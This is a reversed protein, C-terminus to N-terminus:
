EVGYDDNLDEQFYDQFYGHLDEEEAASISLERAGRGNPRDWWVAAITWDGHVDGNVDVYDFEFNAEVRLDLRYKFGTQWNELEFDFVELEYSGYYWRKPYGVLAALRAEWLGAGYKYKAPFKNANTSM